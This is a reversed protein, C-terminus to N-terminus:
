TEPTAATVIQPPWLAPDSLWEPGNWWLSNEKLVPGGRRGLDAPNDQTPVHRWVVNEHEKIKRVRNGVFQKYQGAGNIWHLAVSSDLWCTLSHVPFGTLADRVNTLLNVALSLNLAHYQSDKSLSDQV